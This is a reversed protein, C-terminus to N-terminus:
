KSMQYCSNRMNKTMIIADERNDSYYNKRIGNPIFGMKFYLNQAIYNSKRVELTMTKAKYSKAITIITKLLLKGVGFGRYEPHVGVSTVHAEDIILWIGCYGIVKGNFKAVIYHAIRSNKLECLFANRSWPTKFCKEEVKLVGDIDKFTMPEIQFSQAKQEM